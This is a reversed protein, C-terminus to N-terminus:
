ALAERLKVTARRYRETAANTSTGITKAIVAFPHGLKARYILVEQDDVDLVKVADWMDTLNADVEMAFEDLDDLTDLAVTALTPKRLRDILQRHMISRLWKFADKDEDLQDLKQFAQLMTDQVMDELDQKNREMQTGYKAIKAYLPTIVREYRVHTYGM